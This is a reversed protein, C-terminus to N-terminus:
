ISFFDTNCPKRNPKWFCNSSVPGTEPFLSSKRESIEYVLPHIRFCYQVRTGSIKVTSSSFLSNRHFNYIHVAIGDSLQPLRFFRPLGNRKAAIRQMYVKFFHLLPIIQKLVKGHKHKQASFLVRQYVHQFHDVYVIAGHRFIGIENRRYQFILVNFLITSRALQGTHQGNFLASHELAIGIHHATKVM